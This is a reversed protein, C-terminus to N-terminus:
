SYKVVKWGVEPFHGASTPIMNVASTKMNAQPCAEVFGRLASVDKSRLLTVVKAVDEDVDIQSMQSEKSNPRLCVHM